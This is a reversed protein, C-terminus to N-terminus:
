FDMVGRVSKAARRFNQWVLLCIADCLEERGEVDGGHALAAEKKKNFGVAM